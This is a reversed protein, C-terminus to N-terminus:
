MKPFLPNFVGWGARLQEYRRKELLTAQPPLVLECALGPISGAVFHCFHGRDPCRQTTSDAWMWKMPYVCIAAVIVASVVSVEVLV